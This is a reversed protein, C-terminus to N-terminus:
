LTVSLKFTVKESYQRFAEPLVNFCVRPVEFAEKHRKESPFKGLHVKTLWGGYVSRTQDYSWIRWVQTCTAFYISRSLWILILLGHVAAAEILFDVFPSHEASTLSTDSFWDSISYQLSWTFYVLHASKQIRYSRLTKTSCARVERLRHFYLCVNKLAIKWLKM